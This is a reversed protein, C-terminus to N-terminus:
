SEVNRSWNKICKKPEASWSRVGPRGSDTGACERATGTCERQMGPANGPRGPCGPVGVEADSKSVRACKGNWLKCERVFEETKPVPKQDVKSMGHGVKSPIEPAASWKRLEGPLICQINLTESLLKATLKETEPVPNPHVKSSQSGTKSLSEM